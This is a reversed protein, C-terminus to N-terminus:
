NGKKRDNYMSEYLEIKQSDLYDNLKELEKDNTPTWIGREALHAEAQERTILESFRSDNLAELYVMEAM